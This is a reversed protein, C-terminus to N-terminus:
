AGDYGRRIRKGDLRVDVFAHTGNAHYVDVISHPSVHKILAYLERMDDLTIPLTLTITDLWKGLQAASVVDCM